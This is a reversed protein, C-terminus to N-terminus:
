FLKKLLNHMGFVYALSENFSQHYMNLRFFQNKQDDIVNFSDREGETLLLTKFGLSTTIQNIENNTRGNPFAIIDISNGSINELINKSTTLEMKLIEEDENDFMCHSHSHSGIECGYKQFLEVDNKNGVQDLFSLNSDILKSCVDNSFSRREEKKLSGLKTSFVKEVENQKLSIPKDFYTSNSYHSESSHNLANYVRINDQPLGTELTETDININASVNYKKLVPLVNTILEKHNDDFSLIVNLQKKSYQKQSLKSFSTFHGKRKFYSTIKEFVETPVPKYHTVNNSSVKHFLLILVKGQQRKRQFYYDFTLWRLLFFVIIRAANM